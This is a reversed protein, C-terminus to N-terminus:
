IEGKAIKLLGKDVFGGGDALIEIRAKVSPDHMNFGPIVVGEIQSRSLADIEPKEITM